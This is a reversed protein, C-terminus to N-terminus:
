VSCITPLTLHTYSVTTTGLRFNGYMGIDYGAHVKIFDIPYTVGDLYHIQVGLFFLRRPLNIPSTNNPHKDILIGGKPYSLNMGFFRINNNCDLSEDTEQLVVAPTETDTDEDWWGCIHIHLSKFDCERVSSLWLATGYIRDLFIENFRCMYAQDIIM